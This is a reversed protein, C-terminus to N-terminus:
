IGILLKESFVRRSAVRTDISVKWPTLISPPWPAHLHSIMTMNTSNSGVKPTPTHLTGQKAGMRGPADSNGLPVHTSRYTRDKQIPIGGPSQLCSCSSQISQKTEVLQFFSRVSPLSTWLLPGLPTKIRFGCLQTSAPDLSSAM